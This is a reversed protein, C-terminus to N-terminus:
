FSVRIDIINNQRESLILNDDIRNNQRESL